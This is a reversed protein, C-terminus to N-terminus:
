DLDPTFNTGNFSSYDSLRFLHRVKQSFVSWPLQTIHTRFTSISTSAIMQLMKVEPVMGLTHFNIFGCTLQQVRLWAQFRPYIAFLFLLMPITGFFQRLWLVKSSVLLCPSLLLLAESFKPSIELCIFLSSFFMSSTVVCIFSSARSFCFTSSTEWCISFNASLNYLCSCNGMGCSLTTLVLYSAKTFVTEAFTLSLIWLCFFVTM